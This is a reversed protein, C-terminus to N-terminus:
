VLGGRAAKGRTQGRGDPRVAEFCVLFGFNVWPIKHGLVSFDGPSRSDEAPVEDVCPWNMCAHTRWFRSFGPSWVNPTGAKAPKDRTKRSVDTKM